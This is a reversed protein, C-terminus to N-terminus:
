AEGKHLLARFQELVAASAAADLAQRGYRAQNYAELILQIRARQAPYAQQLIQGYEPVTWAADRPKGQLAFYRELAGYVAPVDLEGASQVLRRLRWLAWRSQLLTRSFYLGGGLGLLLTLLVAGGGKLWQWLFGVSAGLLAKLQQWAAGIGQFLAAWGQLWHTSVAEPELAQSSEALQSVYDALAASVDKDEEANPLAYFATPEFLVWGHEPFYAEVWAHADLGRVEFYGTLPNLNTASFGTALRAPIGVSRLMMVMATAFLECHGQRAEFLFREISLDADFITNLTYRYQSRMHQEIAVAKALAAPFADTIDAALAAVQPSLDKPLQLYNDLNTEVRAGSAPHEGVYEIHSQASYRTGERLRAPARISGYRDRAIVSAPFTLQQLREAVFVTDPVDMVLTVTQFVTNDDAAALPDLKLVGKELRKKRTATHTRSWSHGDFYDFVKGKLYLPRDAQLYLVIANSLGRRGGPDNIDFDEKFGSYVFAVRSGAGEAEQTADEEGTDDRQGQPKGNEDQRSAQKEKDQEGSDAERNHNGQSDRRGQQEEGAADDGQGSQEEREAENEAERDWEANHYQNGGSAAVSGYHLAPPRPIALYALVAFLMVLGSLGAVPPLLPLRGQALLPMTMSANRQDLYHSYLTFMAVLVYAALMLLFLGSKSNAAAYLLLCFSVGLTFYLSRRKILTFNQAAQAWLLLSVLAGELGSSVILLFFAILGLLAVANGFDAYQKNPGGRQAWGCRLGIGFIVGWWLLQVPGLGGGLGVSVLALAALMQLGYLGYFVAVQGIM